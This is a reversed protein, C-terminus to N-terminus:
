GHIRILRREAMEDLLALVDAECQARDVDYNHAIIEVIETVEKPAQLSQWVQAGVKTLGYYQGGDSDLIVVEEPGLSAAVLGPAAVVVCKGSMGTMVNASESSRPM